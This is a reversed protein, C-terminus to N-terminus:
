ADPELKDHRIGKYRPERLLGESSYDMAEVEVIKGIITSPNDFWRTREADSGANVRLPKGYFSVEIAGVRGANRGLGEHVATVRLDFSLKRKIKIIEGTTGRGASWTGYPDRYIAGDYGGKEVLSNCFNQPEFSRSYSHILQAPDPCPGWEIGKPLRNLRDLYGVPSHGSLFEHRTLCDFVVMRLRESESHRRFHGSIESFQDKGPWWAEGLLVIGNHKQATEKLLGSLWRESRGMAMNPEGTRSTTEAEIGLGVPNLRMVANCGDHKPQGIYEKALYGPQELVKRRATKVKSLEVAKHIIEGSV